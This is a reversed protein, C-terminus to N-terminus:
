GVGGDHIMLGIMRSNSVDWTLLSYAGRGNVESAPQSTASTSARRDTGTNTIEFTRVRSNVVSWNGILDVFEALSTMTLASNASSANYPQLLRVHEGPNNQITLRAAPTGHVIVPFSDGIEAQYDGAKLNYSGGPNAYASRIATYFDIPDGYTGRARYNGSPSVYISSASLDVGRAARFLAYVDDDSLVKDSAMLAEDIYANVNDSGVQVPQNSSTRPTQIYTGTTLLLGDLYLKVTKNTFDHSVAVHYVRNLKGQALNPLQFGVTTGDTATFNYSFTDSGAAVALQFFGSTNNTGLSVLSNRFSPGFANISVLCSLTLGTTPAQCFM